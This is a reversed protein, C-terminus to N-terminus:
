LGLSTTLIQCFDGGAVKGARFLIEESVITGEEPIRVVFSRTLGAGQWLVKGDPGRLKASGTNTVFFALQEPHGEVAIEASNRFRVNYEATASLGNETNTITDSGSFTATISVFTDDNPDTTGHTDFFLEGNLVGTTFVTLPLDAGCDNYDIVESGDNHDVFHVRRLQEAPPSAAVPGAILALLALVAVLVFASRAIIRHM